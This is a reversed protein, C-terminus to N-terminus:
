NVTEDLDKMLTEFFGCMLSKAEASERPWNFGFGPVCRRACNSSSLPSPGGVGDEIEVDESDPARRSERQHDEGM